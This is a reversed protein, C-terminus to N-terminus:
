AASKAVAKEAFRIRRADAAKDHRTKMTKLYRDLLAAGVILGDDGKGYLMRVTRFPLPVFGRHSRATGNTLIM